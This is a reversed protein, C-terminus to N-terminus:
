VHEEYAIKLACDIRFRTYFEEKVGRPWDYSATISYWTTLLM